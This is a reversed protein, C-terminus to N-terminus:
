TGEIGYAGETYRKRLQQWAARTEDTIPGVARWFAQGADEARESVGWWLMRIAQLDDQPRAIRFGWRTLVIIAAGSVLAWLRSWM